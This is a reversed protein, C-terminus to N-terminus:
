RPTGRIATRSSTVVPILRTTVTTVPSTQPLSRIRAPGAHVPITSRRDHVTRHLRSRRARRRRRGRSATPAATRDPDLSARPVEGHVQRHKRPPSGRACRAAIGGAASLRLGSTTIKLIASCRRTHLLNPTITESRTIDRRPPEKKKQGKKKKRPPPPSGLHQHRMCQMGTAVDRPGPPGRLASIGGPALGVIDGTALTVVLERHPWQRSAANAHTFPPSGPRRLAGRAPLILGEWVLAASRRTAIPNVPVGLTNLPRHWM